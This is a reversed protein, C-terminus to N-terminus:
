PTQAIGARLLQESPTEAGETAARLLVNEQEVGPEIAARVLTEQVPLRYVNHSTLLEVEEIEAAERAKEKAAQAIGWLGVPAGVLLIFLLFIQTLRDEDPLVFVLLTPIGALVMLMLLKLSLVSLRAHARAARRALYEKLPVLRKSGPNTSDRDKM